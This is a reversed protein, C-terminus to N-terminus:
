GGGSIRCWQVIERLIDEDETAGRQDLAHGVRPRRASCGRRAGTSRSCGAVAGFAGPVSVSRLLSVRLPRFRASGRRLAGGAHQTLTFRVIRDCSSLAPSALVCCPCRAAGNKQRWSPKWFHGIPRYIIDKVHM